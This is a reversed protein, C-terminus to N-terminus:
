GHLKPLAVASLNSYSERYAKSPASSLSCMRFELSRKLKDMSRLTALAISLDVLRQGKRQATQLGVHRNEASWHLETEAHSPGHNRSVLYQRPSNANEPGWCFSKPAFEGQHQSQNKCKERKKVLVLELNQRMNGETSPALASKQM